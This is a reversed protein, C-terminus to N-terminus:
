VYRHFHVQYAEVEGKVRNRHNLLDELRGVWGDKEFPKLAVAARVRTEDEPDYTLNFPVVESKHEHTKGVNQPSWEFKCSAPQHMLARAFNAHTFTIEVAQCRSLNDRLEIHISGKSCHTIVCEGKLM